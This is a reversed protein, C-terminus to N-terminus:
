ENAAVWEDLTTNKRHQRKYHCEKHYAAKPWGDDLDELHWIMGEEGDGTVVDEKADIPVGCFPCVYGWYYDGISCAAPHSQPYDNLEDGYPKNWPNPGHERKPGSNPIAEPWNEANLYAWERWDRDDTM